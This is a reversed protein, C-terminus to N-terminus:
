SPVCRHEHDITDLGDVGDVLWRGLREIAHEQCCCADPEPDNNPYGSGRIWREITVYAAVRLVDDHAYRENIEDAITFDDEPQEDPLAAEIM